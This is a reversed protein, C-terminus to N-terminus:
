WRAEIQVWQHAALQVQIKGDEIPCDDLPNGCFDTKRAVNVARFCQLGAKAPRGGTEQLRVLFGVVDGDEILPEWHSAVVNRTDVHFLWSSNAPAPPRATQFLSTPPTM